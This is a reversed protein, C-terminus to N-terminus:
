RVPSDEPRTFTYTAAPNDLRFSLPGSIQTVGDTWRVYAGKTEIVDNDKADKPIAYHVVYPTYGLQMGEVYFLAGQPVSNYTVPFTQVCGSLLGTLLLAHILAIRM